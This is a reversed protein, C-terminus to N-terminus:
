FNPWRIPYGVELSSHRTIETICPNQTHSKKVGCRLMAIRRSVVDHYDDKKRTLIPEIGQQGLVKGTSNLDVSIVPIGCNLRVFNITPPSYCYSLQNGKLVVAASVLLILTLSMTMDVESDVVCTLICSDVRWGSIESGSFGPGIRTFVLLTISFSKSETEGSSRVLDGAIRERWAQSYEIATRFAWVM